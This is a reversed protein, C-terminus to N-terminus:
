SKLIARRGIAWAKVFRKKNASRGTHIMQGEQGRERRRRGL